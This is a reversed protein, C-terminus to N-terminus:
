HFTERIQLSVFVKVKNVYSLSSQVPDGRSCSCVGRRKGDNLKEVPIKIKNKEVRLLLIVPGMNHLIWMETNKVIGDTM